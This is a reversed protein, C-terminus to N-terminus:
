KKQKDCIENILQVLAKKRREKTFCRARARAPKGDMTLAKQIATTTAEEDGYPVVIGTGDVVWEM